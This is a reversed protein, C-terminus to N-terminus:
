LGLMPALSQMAAPGARAQEREMHAVLWGALGQLEHRFNREFPRRGTGRCSLCDRESHTKTGPILQLGHGGCTKCTGNRHWALCAKAMDDAQTRAIRLRMSAAKNRLLQSLDTVLAASAGNDGHFLRELRVALPESKSALGYAGVVDTDSFTTREDVTLCTSNVAVAYREQIKM